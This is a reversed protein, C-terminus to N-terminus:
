RASSFNDSILDYSSIERVFSAFDSRFLTLYLFGAIGRPGRDLLVRLRRRKSGAQQEFIGNHKTNHPSAANRSVSSFPPPFPNRFM